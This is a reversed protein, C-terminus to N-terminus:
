IYKSQENKECISESKQIILISSVQMLLRHIARISELHQSPGSGDIASQTRRALDDM